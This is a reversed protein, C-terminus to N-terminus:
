TKRAIRAIKKKHKDIVSKVFGETSVTLKAIQEVSLGMEQHLNIIHPTLFQKREQEIIAKRLAALTSPFMKLDEEIEDMKM